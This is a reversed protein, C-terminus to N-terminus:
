EVRGVQEMVEAPSRYDRDDIQQLVNVVDDTDPGESMSAHDILDDKSAPFDIGKLHQMINAPGRGGVGRAM